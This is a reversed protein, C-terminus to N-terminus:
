KRPTKANATNSYASNGASNYARVRYYYRRNSQLGTNSYTTVNAAVTAIQFFNAGNDSREIKFGQENTANDSWALNIQSTSGATATLASPAAPPVALTTASSLNSYASDGASSSARVRYYYTTAPALGSDSFATANSATVAIQTFNIGNTSREIKFSTEDNSNDSWSLNIQSSSITTATLGSPASPPLPALPTASAQNSDASEGASNVASVVYYYTTGNAVTNDTYSTLTIATAIVTYPGGSTGARKVNNSTAGTSASWNLSVQANGALATLGTPTPPPVDFTRASALNSYGTQNVANFARVRYYFTTSPSLGTDSYTTLNAANTAIATFNTGDLSREIEFGDENSANDTWTLNIQSSSVAM